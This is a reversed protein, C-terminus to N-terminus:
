NDYLEKLSLMLKKFKEFDLHQQRQMLFFSISKKLPCNRVRSKSSKKFNKFKFPAQTISMLTNSLMPNNSMKVPELLSNNARPGRKKKQTRNKLRKRSM